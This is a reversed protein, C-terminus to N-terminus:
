FHIQLTDLRLVHQSSLYLYDPPFSLSPQTASHVQLNVLPNPAQSFPLPIYDSGTSSSFNSCVPNESLYDSSKSNADTPQVLPCQANGPDQKKWAGLISHLGQEEPTHPLRVETSYDYQRKGEETQSWSLLQSPGVSHRGGGGWGWGRAEKRGRKQSQRRLVFMVSSQFRGM